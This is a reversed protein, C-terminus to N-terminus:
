AYNPAYKLAYKQGHNTMTPHGLCSHSIAASHAPSYVSALHGSEGEKLPRLLARKAKEARAGEMTILKVDFPAKNGLHPLETIKKAQMQVGWDGHVHRRGKAGEFKGTGGILTWSGEAAQLPDRDQHDVIV